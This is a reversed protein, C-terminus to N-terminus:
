FKILFVPFIIKAKNKNSNYTDLQNVMPSNLQCAKILCFQGSPKFIVNTGQKVYIKSM